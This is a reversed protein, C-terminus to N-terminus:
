LTGFDMRLASRLETRLDRTTRRFQDERKKICAGADLIRAFLDHPTDVKRKYVREEVLVV